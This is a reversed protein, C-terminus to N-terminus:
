RNETTSTGALVHSGVVKVLLESIEVAQDRGPLIGVFDGNGKDMPPVNWEFAFEEFAVGASMRRWGSNGVDATSYAFLFEARELGDAARAVLQVRVRSGSAALEFADPVRISLGGTKWSSPSDVNGGSLRLASRQPGGVVDVQMDDPIEVCDIPIRDLPLSFSGVDHAPAERAGELAPTEHTSKHTDSAATQAVSTPVDARSPVEIRKGSRKGSRKSKM